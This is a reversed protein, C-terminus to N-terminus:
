LVRCGIPEDDWDQKGLRSDLLSKREPLSEALPKQEALIGAVDPKVWGDPKLIKGDARTLGGVKAMNSAHIADWVPRPDIGYSVLLGLGVYIMDCIGDAIEVLDGDHLADCTEDFEEELISRRLSVTGGDPIAPTSGIKCGFKKHFEYVDRFMDASM